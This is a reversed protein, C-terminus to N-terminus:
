SEFADNGECSLHEHRLFDQYGVASFDGNPDDTSCALHTDGGDGDVGFEVAVGQVHSEGVLREGEATLRRRLTVEIGLCNEICDALATCIGHV